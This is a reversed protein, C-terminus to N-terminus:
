QATVTLTKGGALDNGDINVVLTYMAGSLCFLDSGAGGLCGVDSGNPGDYSAFDCGINFTGDWTGTTRFKFGSAGDFELDTYTWSYITGSQTPLQALADGGWGVPSGSILVGDGIISLSEGSLDAAPIDGTRTFTLSWGIGPNWGVEVTYLGAGGPLDAVGWEPGGAIVESATAGKGFNAFIIFDDEFSPGDLSIIKWGENWRFKFNASIQIDTGRWTAGDADASVQPITQFGDSIQMDNIRYLYAAELTQDIIIHYFGAAGVPIAGGGIVIKATDVMGVIQNNEGNLNKTGTTGPVIGWSTEVAGAKVVVNLDGASLYAFGEFMGPRLNSSFGDGEVRGAIMTFAQKLGDVGTATGSLYVGDEVPPEVITTDDDCGTTYLLFAPLVLMMALRRNLFLNLFKM